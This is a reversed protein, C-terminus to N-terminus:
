RCRFYIRNKTQSRIERAFPWQKREPRKELLAQIRGVALM